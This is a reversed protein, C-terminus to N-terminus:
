LRQRLAMRTHDIGAELDLIATTTLTAHAVEYAARDTEGRIMNVNSYV